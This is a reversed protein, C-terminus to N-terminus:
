LKSEENGVEHTSMLALDELDDEGQEKACRVGSSSELITANTVLSRAVHCWKLCKYM